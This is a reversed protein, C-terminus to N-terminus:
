AVKKQRGGGVKDRTPSREFPRSNRRPKKGADKKTPVKDKSDSTDESQSSPPTAADPPVSDNSITHQDEKWQDENFNSGGMMRAKILAFKSGDQKLRHEGLIIERSIRDLVEEPPEYKELDARTVTKRGNELADGLADSFWIKLLGVLGLCRDILYEL